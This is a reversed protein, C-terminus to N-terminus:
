EADRNVIVFPIFRSQPNVSATIFDSISHTANTHLSSIQQVGFPPTVIRSSTTVSARQARQLFPRLNSQAVISKLAAAHWRV